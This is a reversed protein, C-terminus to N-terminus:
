RRYRLFLDSRGAYAVKWRLMSLVPFTTSGSARLAELIAISGCTRHLLACSNTASRECTLSFYLASVTAAASRLLM